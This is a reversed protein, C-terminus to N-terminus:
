LKRNHLLPLGHSRYQRDIPAIHWYYIYLKGHGKNKTVHLSVGPINGAFYVSSNVYDNNGFHEQIWRVDDDKTRPVVLMKTYPKGIPHLAGGQFAAPRLNKEHHSTILLSTKNRLEELEVDRRVGYISILSIPFGHLWLVILMSAISVVAWRRSPIM